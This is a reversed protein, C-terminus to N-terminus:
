LAFALWCKENDRASKPVCESYSILRTRANKIFLDGFRCFEIRINKLDGLSDPRIAGDFASGIQVCDSGVKECRSLRAEVRNCNGEHVCPPKRIMLLLNSLYRTFDAERLNGDAM